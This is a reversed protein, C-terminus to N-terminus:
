PENQDANNTLQRQEQREKKIEELERLSAKLSEEAKIRAARIKELKSEIEKDWKQIKERRKAELECCEATMKNNEVILIRWGESLSNRALWNDVRAIFNKFEETKAQIDSEGLRWACYSENFGDFYGGGRLRDLNWYILTYIGVINEVLSAREVKLRHALLVRTFLRSRKLIDPSRHLGYKIFVDADHVGIVLYLYTFEAKPKKYYRLTWSKKSLIRLERKTLLLKKMKTSALYACLNACKGKRRKGRICALIEAPHPWARTINLVPIRDLGAPIGPPIRAPRASRSPRCQTLSLGCRGTVSAM